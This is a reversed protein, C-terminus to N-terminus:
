NSQQSDKRELNDHSQAIINTKRIMLSDGVYHPNKFNPASKDIITIGQGCFENRRLKEGGMAQYEAQDAADTEFSISVNGTDTIQKGRM